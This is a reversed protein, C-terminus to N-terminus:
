KLGPKKLIYSLNTIVFKFNDFGNGKKKLNYSGLFSFITIKRFIRFLLFYKLNTAFLQFCGLFKFQINKKKKAKKFVMNLFGFFFFFFFFGCVLNSIKLKSIKLALCFLHKCDIIKFFNLYNYKSIFFSKLTRKYYKLINKQM